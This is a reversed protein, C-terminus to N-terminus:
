NEFNGIATNVQGSHQALVGLDYLAFKNRPDAKLARRYADRSETIKGERQLVLGENVLTNSQGVNRGGGCAAVMVLVVLAPALRRGASVVATYAPERRPLRHVRLRRLTRRRQRRPRHPNVPLGRLRAPRWAARRLRRAL